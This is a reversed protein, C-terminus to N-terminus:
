FKYAARLTFARGLPDTYRPDYGQQFVTGQNSFPPKIDLVNSVLLGLNLNKIGTYNIGLNTLTYSKVQNVYQPEVLNQDTYGSLNRIALSYRLNNQTLIMSLGHKWRFIPSADQYSGVNQIYEGNPERQYKYSRIYTADYGVNLRGIPTATQWAATLDVGDTKTNGLNDALTKVYAISNNGNAAGPAILCREWTAAETASLENCRVVKNGYRAIDAFITQEPFGGISSELMINWYDATFILNRQPQFATGLTFSKSKEPKLAPNGGQLAQVQQGCDRTALGAAAVKGGPCLVPDNYANASFTGAQPGYLDDLTPAHFGTNASGRFILAPSATYRFGLKPNTSNGFDSYQDIRLAAQLELEKSVPFIAETMLASVERSKDNVHYPARGASPVGRVLADDTDNSYSERRSDVGVAIAAAGGAMNFLDRNARVDVGTVRGKGVGFTGFAKAAQILALGEATNAGFPNLKGSTIGSQIASKYVYGNTPGDGAESTAAYFGAKYDWNSLTGTVDAVFRQAKAFSTNERQGAPVMRWGIGSLAQSADIGPFTTPYFPSTIPMTLGTVPDPAVRAVNKNDSNLFEVTLLHGGGLRFTGKATQTRNVTEPIIDIAASYDYRCNTSSLSTLFLSTPPACGPATINGGALKGDALKFYNFNAPFTTGSTKFLGLNPIVGTAAFDRSLAPLARQTREDASFWINYGDQELSGKGGSITVRRSGGGGDGGGNSPFTRETVLDLGQYNRKTIFNIVGGVADTGYVASAGDRLIEVRELAAFPIANLDVAGATTGFFALRRGNLLVLTKNGGLGRLNAYTAGYTASGINQSAGTSSQSATIRQVIEETSTVGTARLEDMSFVTVPLAEQSEITRRIASGTIEIRELSAPAQQAFALSSAELVLGAIGFATVIQKMTPNLKHTKM